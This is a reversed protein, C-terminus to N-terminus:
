GINGEQILDNLPLGKGGYHKAISIVLRLNHIILEHKAQLVDKRSRAIIRCQKKFNEINLGTESKIRKRLDSLEQDERSLKTYNGVKGKQTSSSHKILRRSGNRAIKRELAEVDKLLSELM